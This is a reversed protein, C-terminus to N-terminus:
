NEKYRRIAFVIVVVAFACAVLGLIIDILVFTDDFAPEITFEYRSELTEYGELEVRAIMIYHGAKTPKETLVIDPHDKDIYMYFVTGNVAAGSPSHGKSGFEESWSDISPQADGVWANKSLMVDFMTESTITQTYKASAYAVVIYKGAVTPIQSGLDRRTLADLYRYTITVKDDEYGDLSTTATPQEWKDKEGLYLVSSIHVSQEWEIARDRITFMIRSSQNADLNDDANDFNEAYAVMFYTGPATPIYFEYAYKRGNSILLADDDNADIMETMKYEGDVLEARYFEFYPLGHLPTGIPLSVIEDINATWSEINPVTVWYNADSNVFISFYIVEELGDFKNEEGDVTVTMVYAGIPATYLVNYPAESSYPYASNYYVEGSERDKIVVAVDGYLSDAVPDNEKEHYGGYYWATIKPTEVWANKAESVRFTTEYTFGEYNGNPSITLCLKYTGKILTKLIAAVDAPVYKDNLFSGTQVGKDNVLWFEPVFTITGDESKVAFTVRGLSAPTGTFLNVKENYNSWSWEVVGPMTTFERFQIGTIDFLLEYGEAIAEYRGESDAAVSFVAKYTGVGTPMSNLREPVDSVDYYDVKYAGHRAAATVTVESGSVWTYTKEGTSKVNGGSFVPAVTWSNKAKNVVFTKSQATKGELANYNDLANVTVTITYGGAVYKLAALKGILIDRDSGNVSRVGKDDTVFSITFDFETVTANGNKYTVSVLASNGQASVPLILKTDIESAINSWDWKGAIDLVNNWSNDAKEIVLTVTDNLPGYKNDAAVIATIVYENVKLGMIYEGLSAYPVDVTGVKVTLLDKNFAPVFVINPPTASGYTWNLKKKETQQAWSNDQVNVEFTYNLVGASYNDTKDVTVSIRYTDATWDDTNYTLDRVLAEYARVAPSSGDRTQEEVYESARFIKFLGGNSKYVSYIVTDGGFAFEPMQILDSTFKGWKWTIKQATNNDDFEKTVSNTAQKVVVTVNRTYTAYNECRVIYQVTYTGADKAFLAKKMEGFTKYEESWVTGTQIRYTIVAGDQSVKIDNLVRDEEDAGWSWEVSNGGEGGDGSGGGLGSDDIGPMSALSVNVSVTMPTLSYSGAEGLEATISISYNGVDLAKLANVLNDLTRTEGTVVVSVSTIFSTENEGVIKSIAYHLTYNSIAQDKETVIAVKTLSHGSLTDRENLNWSVSIMDQAWKIKQPAIRFFVEEVLDNYNQNGKLTVVMAYFGAFAAKLDSVPSSYDVSSGGEDKAAYYKYTIDKSTEVIPVGPTYSNPEEGFEWGSIAPTTKWDNNAKAVAFRFDLSTAAFNITEEVEAHLNYSGADLGILERVTGGYLAQILDGFSKKKFGDVDGDVSGTDTVKQVTYVVDGHVAKGAVIKEVSDATKDYVDGYTWSNIAPVSEFSNAAQTINFPIKTVLDNYNDTGTLSVTLTYSGAVVNDGNLAAITDDTLYGDEDVVLTLEWPEEATDVDSSQIGSTVKYTIKKNDKDEDLRAKAATFNNAAIEKTLGKYQWGVMIPAQSWSNDAKTVRFVISLSLQAYDASGDLDATLTYQGAALNLFLDVVDDNDVKGNIDTFEFRSDGSATNGKYLAYTVVKDKIANTPVGAQFNTGAQFNKYAWGTMFPATVWSNQALAVSFTIPMSLASYNPDEEISVVLTYNGSPLKKLYEVDAASMEYKGVQGAAKKVTLTYLAEDSGKSESYLNYEIGDTNFTATGATFLDTKFGGFVWGVISPTVTWKNQAQAVSFIIDHSLETYNNTGAYKAVLKYQGAGLNKLKSRVTDLDEIPDDWQKTSTSGGNTSEEKYLTYQVKDGTTKFRAEGPTFLNTPDDGYTWGIVSPPTGWTNQAKTVSFIMDLSLASYNKNGELSAVLKYQGAGLEGLKSKISDVDEIPGTWVTNSQEGEEKYLTYQVKEGEPTFAAKGPTFLSASYNGYTWGIVSPTTGWTNQAKSVTFVMPMSLATYNDTGAISALLTYTKPSLQEKLYKVDEATMEYKAEAGGVNSVHLEYIQEASADNGSYIKYTIKDTDYTAIGATFLNANFGGFVWGVISPTVTWKNQAQAVTFYLDLSLEDYDGTGELSVHLKYQGAGLQKLKSKVTDVVTVSEWQSNYSGDKEKSLSYKIEKGETNLEAAGPTFLSSPDNGFTWGIISPTTTWTNQAKTVSFVIYLELAEYNNDGGLYAHLTYTGYPLAKFKGEIETTIATFTDEWEKTIDTGTGKYLTYVVKKDTEADEEKIPNAPVGGQFNTSSKFGNYAWGTIFPAKEWSNQAKTVSFVMDLSLDAYDKADNGELFAVLTYTGVILENLVKEDATKIKGGTLLEFPGHKLVRSTGSGSYLTYQVVKGETNRTAVGAQFNNDQNFSKYAWGTIFPATTWGNDVQAVTFIMPLSLETYCYQMGDIHATLTYTGPSLKEFEAVTEAPMEYKDTSEAKTANFKLKFASDLYLSYEIGETNFTATGATFLNKSFSGFTWGVISPTTTWTNEAQSVNFVMSLSLKAYDTTGDLEAVLTYTSEGLNAFYDPLGSEATIKFSPQLPSASSSTDTGKYLTYKIDEANGYQAAGAKFNTASFSGFTWGIMYPTTTWSNETQSVSFYMDQSLDAYDATGKYSAVITYTGAGLAKFEAAATTAKDSVTINGKLTTFEILKQAKESTTDAGVYLAYQVAALGAGSENPTENFTPEGEQFNGGDGDNFGQYAWGLMRPPTKWSNQAQAVNFFINLSMDAYNSTGKYSAVITYQGFHLAKFEGVVKKDASNKINGDIDTFEFLPRVGESTTDTGKYLAYQVKEKEGGDAAMTDFYYPEGASFNSADFGQYAWGIVYPIKSQKWSNQTQSVIIESYSGVATRFEKVNYKKNDDQEGAAANPNAIAPVYSELYYTGAPLQKLADAIDKSVKGGDDVSFSEGNADFAFTKVGDEGTAVKFWEYTGSETKRGIRFKVQSKDSVGFRLSGTVLNNEQSFSDYNWGTMQPAITWSNEAPLINYYVLLDNNEDIVLYDSYYKTFWGDETDAEKFKSTDWSVDAKREDKIKLKVYTKGTNQYNAAVDDYDYDYYSSAYVVTTIREGNNYTGSQFYTPNETDTMKDYIDKVDIGTYMWVYFGYNDFDQSNVGGATVYNKASISYYVPFTGTDRFSEAMTGESYDLGGGYGERSYQITVKTDYYGNQAESQWYGQRDSYNSYLLTNNLAKYVGGEGTINDHLTTAGLPRSNRYHEGHEKDTAKETGRIKNHLDTSEKSDYARPLVYLKYEGTVRSKGDGDGEPYYELTITYTGAPMSKNIYYQITNKIDKYPVNQTVGGVNFSTAQVWAQETRGGISHTTKGNKEWWYYHEFPGMSRITKKESGDAPELEIAFKATGVKNKTLTDDDPTLSNIVTPAVIYPENVLIDNGYTITDVISFKREDIPTTFDEMDYDQVNGEKGDVVKNIAFPSYPEGGNKLGDLGITDDSYVIYWYKKLVFSENTRTKLPVDLGRYKESLKSEDSYDFQYNKPANFQFSAVYEGSGIQTIGERNTISLTKGAYEYTSSKDTLGVDKTPESVSKEGKIMIYKTANAGTAGYNISYTSNTVTRTNVTARDGVQVFYWGENHQYITTIDGHAAWAPSQTNVFANIANVDVKIKDGNVLISDDYPEVGAALPQIEFEYTGANRISTTEDTCDTGDLYTFKTLSVVYEKRSLGLATYYDICEDEKEGLTYQRGDITYTQGFTFQKQQVADDTIPEDKTVVGRQSFGLFAGAMACLALICISIITFLLYKRKSDSKSMRMEGLLKDRSGIYLMYM